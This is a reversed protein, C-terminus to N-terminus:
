NNSGTSVPYLTNQELVCHLAESSAQVQLGEIELRQIRISKRMFISVILIPTGM